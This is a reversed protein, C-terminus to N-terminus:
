GASRVTEPLDLHPLISDRLAGAAATGAVAELLRAPERVAMRLSPDEPLSGLYRVGRRLFLECATALRAFAHRGEEANLCRNMVVDMPLGPVQLHVIKLLAYADTLATPEPATVVLLRSAQLTGVRVVSELGAGADVVVVDFDACAGLLRHHLRARDHADLAYLSETGSVGPLLWLNQAVPRVEDAVPAEGRLLAEVPAGAPQGLLVHLNALNQDADVLLIRRGQAALAASLLISMLSKGVGGKGSGVVITPM